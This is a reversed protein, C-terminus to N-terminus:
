QEVVGPGPVRPMDPLRERSFSFNRAHQQRQLQQPQQQQRTIPPPPPPMVPAGELEQRPIERLPVDDAVQNEFIGSGSASRAAPRARKQAVAASSHPKFYPNGTNINTTSNGELEGPESQNIPPGNYIGTSGYGNPGPGPSLDGTYRGYGYPPIDPWASGTRRRNESRKYLFWGIAGVVIMFLAVGGGVSGGIIAMRNGGSSTSLASSQTAASSPPISSTASPIGSSTTTTNWGAPLDPYDVTGPPCEDVSFSRVLRGNLNACDGINIEKALPKQSCYLDTCGEDLSEISISITNPTTISQCEGDTHGPQPARPRFACNADTFANLTSIAKVTASSILLSFISISIDSFVHNTPRRLLKM